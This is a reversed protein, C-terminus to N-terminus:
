SSNFFDRRSASSNRSRSASPAPASAFFPTSARSTAPPTMTSARSALSRSACASRCSESVSSACILDPTTTKPLRASPLAESM